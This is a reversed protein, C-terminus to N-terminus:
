NDCGPVGIPSLQRLALRASDWPSKTWDWSRLGCNGLYTARVAITPPTPLNLTYWPLTHTVVRCQRPSHPLTASFCRPNNQLETGESGYM